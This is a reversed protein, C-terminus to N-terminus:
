VMEMKLSAVADAHGALAEDWTSYRALLSQDGRNFTMTEFLIPRGIGLHNYDVALFITSVWVDGIQDQAVICEKSWHEEYWEGWVLIDDVPVPTRGDLIWSIM